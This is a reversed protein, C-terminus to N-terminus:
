AGEPIALNGELTVSGVPIRVTQEDLPSALDRAM